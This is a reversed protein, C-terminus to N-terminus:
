RSLEGPADTVDTYAMTTSQFYPENHGFASLKSM